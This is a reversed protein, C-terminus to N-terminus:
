INAFGCSFNQLAFKLNPGLRPERVTSTGVRDLFSM